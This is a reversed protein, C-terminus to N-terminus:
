QYSLTLSYALHAYLYPPTAAYIEYIKCSKLQELYCINSTGSAALFQIIIAESLENPLM